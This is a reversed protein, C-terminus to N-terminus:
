RRALYRLEAEAFVDKDTFLSFANSFALYYTGTETISVDFKGNTVKDTSYLVRAQHGNRWNEFESEEAIVAQIDNGSGGSAHFTGVVRADRMKESDFQFKVFVYKGARVVSQGSFLKESVPQLVPTPNETQSGTPAPEYNLRSVVVV